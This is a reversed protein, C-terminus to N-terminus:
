GLLDEKPFVRGSCEALRPFGRVRVRVRRRPGVRRVGYSSYSYPKASYTYPSLRTKMMHPHRCIMAVEHHTGPAIRCVAQLPVADGAAALDAIAGALFRQRSRLPVSLAPMRRSDEALPSDVFDALEM